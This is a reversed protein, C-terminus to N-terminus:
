PHIPLLRQTHTQPPIDRYLVTDRERQSHTHSWRQTLSDRQTLSHSEMETHTLRETHTLTVGDRHSQSETVTHSPTISSTLVQGLLNVRLRHSHLQHSVYPTSHGYDTQPDPSLITYMFSSHVQHDVQALAAAILRLSFGTQPDPSLITYM